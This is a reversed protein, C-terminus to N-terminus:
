TTNEKSLFMSYEYPYGNPKIIYDHKLSVFPTLNKKCYTLVSSPDSYFLDKAQYEVHVSLSNFALGVACNSFLNSITDYMFKKNNKIRNNFVGSIVSYDYKDEIQDYDGNFEKFKAKPDGNFKTHALSIFEPVLDLGLYHGTFGNKRLYTLLDGLGCGLDVVSQDRKIHSTLIQFRKYQDLKSRHQVSKPSDGNQKYLNQYYEKLNNIM